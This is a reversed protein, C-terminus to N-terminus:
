YLETLGATILRAARSGIMQVQISLTMVPIEWVPANLTKGILQNQPQDISRMSRSTSAAATEETTQVLLNATRCEVSSPSCLSALAPGGSV